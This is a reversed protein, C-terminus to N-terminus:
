KASFPNFMRASYKVEKIQGGALQFVVRGAIKEIRWAKLRQSTVVPDVTVTDGAKVWRRTFEYVRTSWSGKPTTFYQYFYLIRM